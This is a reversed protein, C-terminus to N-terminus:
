FVTPNNQLSFFAMKDGKTQLGYKDMFVFGKKKCQGKGKCSRNSLCFFLIIWVRANLPKEHVRYIQLATRCGFVRRVDTDDTRVQEPPDLKLLLHLLTAFAPALRMHGRQGQVAQHFEFRADLLAGDHQVQLGGRQWLNDTLPAM